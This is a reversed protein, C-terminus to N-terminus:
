YEQLRKLVDVTLPDDTKYEGDLENGLDAVKRRIRNEAYDSDAFAPVDIAVEVSSEKDRITIYWTTANRVPFESEGFKNKACLTNETYQTIKWGNPTLIEQWVSLTPAINFNISVKM